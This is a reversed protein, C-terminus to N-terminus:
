QAQEQIWDVIIGEPDRGSLEALMTVTAACMAALSGIVTIVGEPDLNFVERTTVAFAPDNHTMATLVLRLVYPKVEDMRATNM